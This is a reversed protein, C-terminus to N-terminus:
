ENNATAVSRKQFHDSRNREMGSISLETQNLMIEKIDSSITSVGQLSFIKKKVM